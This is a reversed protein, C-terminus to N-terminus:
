RYRVVGCGGAEAMMHDLPSVQSCDAPGRLLAQSRPFIFGFDSIGIGFDEDCRRSAYELVAM